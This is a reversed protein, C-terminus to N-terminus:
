YLEEVKRNLTISPDDPTVPTDLKDDKSISEPQPIEPKKKIEINMEPLQYPSDEVYSLLKKTREPNYLTNKNIAEKIQAPDDSIISNMLIPFQSINGALYSNQTLITKSSKPLKYWANAYDRNIKRLELKGLKKLYDNYEREAKKEHYSLVSRSMFNAVDSSVTLTKALKDLEEPDTNTRNKELYPELAKILSQPFNYKLLDQKNHQGLDFGFGITIGSKGVQPVHGVFVDKDKVTGELTELIFEVDINYQPQREVRTGDPMISYRTPSPLITGGLTEETIKTGM